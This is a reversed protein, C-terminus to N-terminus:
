GQFAVAVDLRLQCGALPGVAGRGRGGAGGFGERVGGDDDGGVAVAVAGDVPLFRGDREAVENDVREAGVLLVQPDDCVDREVERRLGGVREQGGEVVDLPDREGGVP